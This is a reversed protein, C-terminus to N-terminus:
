KVGAGGLAAQLSRLAGMEAEPSWPSKEHAKEGSPPRWIQARFKESDAKNMNHTCFWWIYSCFQDLPLEFLTRPSGQGILHGDLTDRHDEAIQFYRWIM